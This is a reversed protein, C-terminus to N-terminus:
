KRFLGNGDPGCPLVIIEAGAGSGAGAKLRRAANTNEPRQGTECPFPIISASSDHDSGESNKTAQRIGQGPGSESQLEQETERFSKEFKIFWLFNANARDRVDSFIPDTLIAGAYQALYNKGYPVAGLAAILDQTVTRSSEGDEFVYGCYDSLMQQILAKDFPSCRESLFWMEFTSAMAAGSNLTRFDLFAERAFVRVLDSLSSEELREWPARCGSLQLEWAIRIMCVTLDALQARNVLIAQDPHFTLPHLLVGNRHQWAQRLERGLLLVQEEAPLNANIFIEGTERVYSATEEQDCLTCTVGHGRAFDMLAGGFRSQCLTTVLANITVPEAQSDDQDMGTLIRHEDYFGALLMASDRASIDAPVPDYFADSGFILEDELFGLAAFEDEFDGEFDMYFLPQDGIITSRVPQDNNLSYSVQCVGAAGAQGSQSKNGTKKRM